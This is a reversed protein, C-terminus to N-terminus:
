EEDAAPQQGLAANIVSQLSEFRERLSKEQRELGKIRIDMTEISDDIETKLTDKDDIKILLSGVNKFVDGNAKGLEESTRIMEKKQAEMQLKQTSVAQLQQQTQQYQTIQNQLQPSIGNM